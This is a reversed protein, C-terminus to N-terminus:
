EESELARIQERLNECYAIKDAYEEITAVGTAIKTGIYDYTALEEKLRKVENYKFEENLIYQYKAEDLVVKNRTYKYCNIHLMDMKSKDIEVTDEETGTHVMGILYNENDLYIKYKM